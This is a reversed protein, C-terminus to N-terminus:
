CILLTKGAVFRAGEFEDRGPPKQGGSEFDRVSGEIGHIIRGSERPPPLSSLQQLFGLTHIGRIGFIQDINGGRIVLIGQGSLRGM